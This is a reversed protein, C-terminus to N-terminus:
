AAEKGVRFETVLARLANAASDEANAPDHRRFLVEIRALHAAREAAAQAPDPATDDVVALSEIGHDPLRALMRETLVTGAPLLVQGHTDLLEDSLVMGPEAKALPLHRYTATM